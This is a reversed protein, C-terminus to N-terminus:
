LHAHMGPALAPRIRFPALIAAETPTAGFRARLSSKSGSRHRFHTGALFRITAFLECLILPIAWFPHTLSALPVRLLLSTM